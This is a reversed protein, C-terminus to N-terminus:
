MIHLRALLLECNATNKALERTANIECLKRYSLKYM